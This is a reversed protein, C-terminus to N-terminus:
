YVVQKGQELAEVILSLYVETKGSGTVGYLLTPKSSSRIVQLAEEQAPSLVPATLKPLDKVVVDADKKKPLIATWPKQPLFLEITQRV